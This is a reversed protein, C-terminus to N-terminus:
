APLRPPRAAPTRLGSSARSTASRSRATSSGPRSTRRGARAAPATTPISTDFRLGAIVVYAHGANTYVTIWSGRGRTAGASATVRLRAALRPHRRGEPRARLQGRRLLRLVALSWHGHGGGTCYSAYDISNAAEIARQVEIPADAPPAPWAAACCSRRARRRGPPGATRDDWDVARGRRPQAAPASRRGPRACSASRRLCGIAARRAQSRVILRLM